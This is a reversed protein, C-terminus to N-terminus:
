TATVAAKSLQRAQVASTDLTLSLEVRFRGEPGVLFEWHPVVTSSQHVLEFGGESQSVTQIPFDLRRDSDVTRDVRRRAMRRDPRHTGDAESRPDVRAPRAQPRQWRLLLPRLGRRGPRRFQIRRRFPVARGASPEVLRLPDALRGGTASELAISKELDSAIRARWGDRASCRRSGDRTLPPAEIRLRRPRFRWNRWRRQPLRGSRPGPSLFHDVLSKRPWKDYSSNRTSTRSSSASRM